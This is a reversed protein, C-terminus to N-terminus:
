DNRLAFDVDRWEEYGKRQPNLGRREVPVPVQKQRREQLLREVKRMLQEQLTHPVDDPTARM